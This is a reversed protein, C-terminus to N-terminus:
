LYEGREWPLGLKQSPGQTSGLSPPSREARNRKGLGFIPTPGENVDLPNSNYSEVNPGGVEDGCVGIENINLEVPRNGMPGYKNHVTPVPDTNSVMNRGIDEYNSASLNVGGHLSTNGMNDNGIPSKQPAPSGGVGQSKENVVPSKQPVQSGGVVQTREVEVPPDSAGGSLGEVAVPMAPSQDGIQDEKASSLDPRIEGEEFVEDCGMDEDPDSESDSELESESDDGMHGDDLNQM